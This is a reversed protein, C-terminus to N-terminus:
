EFSQAEDLVLAHLDKEEYDLVWKAFEGYKKKMHAMLQGLKTGEFGTWVSVMEGNFHARVKRRHELKALSEQYRNLFYGFHQAIMDVYKTKDEEFKYGEPFDKVHELFAHYTTRKRDRIRNTHNLNEYAFVEKNFYPSGTVFDFVEDLNNFGKIWREFDLGLFSFIEKGDKSVYLEDYQNDGDRMPYTLGRHGYKLGFKHFIKGMLNGLDNYAYYRYATGLDEKEMPIIDVQLQEFMISLVESNRVLPVPMDLDGNFMAAAVTIQKYHEPKLPYVLLDMDGFSDKEFVYPIEWVLEEPVIKRLTQIIKPRITEYEDRSYRRAGFPALANGGM